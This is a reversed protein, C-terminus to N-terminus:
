AFLMWHLFLIPITDLAGPSCFHLCDGGRSRIWDWARRGPHSDPRFHLMDVNLLSLSDKLHAYHPHQIINQYFADYENFYQWKFRDKSWDTDNFYSYSPGTYKDCDVHGPNITKWIMKLPRKGIKRRETQTHNFMRLMKHVSENFLSDHGGRLTYHPGFDIMVMDPQLRELRGNWMALEEDYPQFFGMIRSISLQDSCMTRNQRWNIMNVFSAFTQQMTSDGIFLIKRRGLLRCFLEPDWALMECQDAEWYYQERLSPKWRTKDLEDCASGHSTILTLKTQPGVMEADHYHTGNCEDKIEPDLFDNAFQGCSVYLKETLNRFVWRGPLFQDPRCLKKSRSSKHGSSAEKEHGVVSIWLLFYIFLRSGVSFM